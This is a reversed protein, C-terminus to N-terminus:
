SHKSNQTRPENEPKDSACARPYFFRSPLPVRHEACRKYNAAKPEQSKPKNKIEETSSTETQLILGSVEQTHSM